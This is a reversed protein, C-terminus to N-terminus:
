RRRARLRYVLRRPWATWRVVKLDRVSRVDDELATTSERLQRSDAALAGIQDCLAQNEARLAGAEDRRAEREEALASVAEALASRTEHLQKTRQRYARALLDDSLAANDEEPASIRRMM